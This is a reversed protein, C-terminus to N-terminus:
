FIKTSIFIFFILLLSYFELRFISQLYEMKKDETFVKKESIEQLKVRIIRHLTSVFTFLVVVSLIKVLFGPDNILTVPGLFDWNNIGLSYIFGFIGTIFILLVYYALIKQIKVLKNALDELTNKTNYTVYLSFILVVVTTIYSSLHLCGLINVFFNNIM